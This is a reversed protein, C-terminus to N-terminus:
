RTFIVEKLKGYQLIKSLLIGGIIGALLGGIHAANDVGTSTIGHYISIGIMVIIRNPSLDPTKIQRIILVALLAGIVGYVAGSAGASVIQEGQGHYYVHSAINGIVGSGFYIFFYAVSGIRKELEYGTYALLIMNNCLHALGFHLFMSTILQYWAGAMVTEYSQAGMALMIETDYVALMDQNVIMVVVFYIINLAIITFNVPALHFWEVKKSKKVIEGLAHELDKKLDDFETIQNEFIYVRGTDQAIMWVNSLRELLNREMNEFMGDKMLVIHLCEVKKCFRTTLTFEIRRQIMIYEETDDERSAWSLTVAYVKDESERFLLGDTEDDLLAYGRQLLWETIQEIM